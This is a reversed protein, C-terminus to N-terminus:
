KPKYYNYILLARKEGVIKKLDKIKATAINRNSKFHRLLDLITKEGIGKIQELENTLFSSGRKYYGGGLIAVADINKILNNEFRRFPKEIHLALLNTFVPTCLLYTLITLFFISYYLTKDHKRNFKLKEFLFLNYIILLIFLLVIPSLLIKIM